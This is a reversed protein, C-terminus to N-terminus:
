LLSTDIAIGPYSFLCHLTVLHSENLSSGPKRRPVLQVLQLHPNRHVFVFHVIEYSELEKNQKTKNKRNAFQQRLAISRACRTERLAARPRTAPFCTSTLEDRYSCCLVAYGNGALSLQMSGERGRLWGLAPQHLQRKYYIRIRHRDFQQRNHSQQYSVRNCPTTGTLAARRRAQVPTGSCPPRLRGIKRRTKAAKADRRVSLAGTRSPAAGSRHPM